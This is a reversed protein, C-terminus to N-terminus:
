QNKWILEGEKAKLIKKLRRKAAQLDCELNYIKIRLEEENV